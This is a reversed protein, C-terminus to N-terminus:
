IKWQARRGNPQFKMARLSPAKKDNKPRRYGGFKRSENDITEMSM